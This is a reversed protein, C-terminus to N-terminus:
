CSSHTRYGSDEWSASLATAMVIVRYYVSRHLGFELWCQGAFRARSLTPRRMTTILPPVILSCREGVKSKEREEARAIMIERECGAPTINNQRKECVAQREGM